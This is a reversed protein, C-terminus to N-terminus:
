VSLILDAANMEAAEETVAVEEMVDVEEAREVPLLPTLGGSEAAEDIAKRLFSELSGPTVVDDGGEVEETPSGSLGRERRAIWIDVARRIHSKMAKERSGGLKGSDESETEGFSKTPAPTDGVTMKGGEGGGLVVDRSDYTKLSARKARQKYRRLGILKMVSASAFPASYSEHELSNLCPAKKSAMADEFRAWTRDRYTPRCAQCALFQCYPFLFKKARPPPPPPQPIATTIDTTPTTSLKSPSDHIIPFPLHPNTDLPNEQRQLQMSSIPLSSANANAAAFREEEEREFCNMTEVAINHVREKQARLIREQEVTYRGEKVAKEIWPSLRATPLCPGTDGGRREGGEEEGDQTCCYLWGLQSRLHCIDCSIDAGYLREM